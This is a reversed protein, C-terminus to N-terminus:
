LAHLLRRRSDPASSAWRAHARPTVDEGYLWDLYRRNHALGLLESRMRTHHPRLEPFEHILRDLIRMGARKPTTLFEHVLWALFWLHLRQQWSPTRPWIQDLLEEDWRVHHVEDALHVRYVEVFRAELIEQERLIAKSYFLSREEQLLMLWFLMPLLLARQSAARLLATWLPSSRVFYFDSEDYLEPAVARNLGRFMESHRREQALFDGLASRLDDQLPLRQASGLAGPALHQELFMIQENMYCGHLQTCRVRQAENLLAFSSTYYLATFNDPVFRKTAVSNERMLLETM